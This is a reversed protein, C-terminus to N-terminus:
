ISVEFEIKDDLLQDQIDNNVNNIFRDIESEDYPQDKSTTKGVGSLCLMCTDSRLCKDTRHSAACFDLYNEVSIQFMDEIKSPDDANLFFLCHWCSTISDYPVTVFEPYYKNCFNCTKIGTIKKKAVMTFFSYEEPSLGDTTMELDQIKKITELNKVTFLNKFDLDKDIDSAMTYGDYEGLIEDTDDSPYPLPYNSKM